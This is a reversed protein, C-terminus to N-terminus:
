IGQAIQSKRYQQRGLAIKLTPRVVFMNIKLAFFQSLFVGREFAPLVCM